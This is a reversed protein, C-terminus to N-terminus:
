RRADACCRIGFRNGQNNPAAGGTDACRASGSAAQSTGDGGLIGCLGANPTCANVWERVNGIMDFAPVVPGVCETMSGAPTTPRAVGSDGADPNQVTCVETRLVDGYPYNRTGAQSCALYWENQIKAGLDTPGEIPGGDGTRGCLRKGSWKCFALADCFDVCTIPMTANAQYQVENGVCTSRPGLAAKTACAPHDKVIAGGGDIFEEYQKQTVETSDVCFRFRTNQFTGEVIVMKPGRGSPCVEPAADVDAGGDSPAAADDAADPGGPGAPLEETGFASCAAAAGCAMAFIAAFRFPRVEEM